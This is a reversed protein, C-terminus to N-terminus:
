KIQLPMGCVIRIVREAEKALFCNVRGVKERYEREFADIPVLGYGVEDSIIVQNEEKEILLRAQDLPDEGAQLQQRVMEHYRNYIVHDKAYHEKAYAYKGQYAGGILLIM